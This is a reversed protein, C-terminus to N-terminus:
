REVVRTSKIGVRSLHLSTIRCLHAFIEFFVCLFFVSINFQSFDSSQALFNNQAIVYASYMTTCFFINEYFIRNHLHYFM